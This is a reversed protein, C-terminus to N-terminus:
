NVLNIPKGRAFAEVTMVVCDALNASAERTWSASQPTLVVNDLSLLPNHSDWEALVDLGAAAIQRKKLARYLALTNVHKGDATNILVSNSKMLGLERDAIINETQPNLALNISVIDSQRLLDDLTVVKICDIGRQSRSYAIVKMGLGLGLEAVRSGITGLGIVGLTKGRLEFGLFQKHGENSPDVQFPRNRMAADAHPISRVVALMLAIAHEAVAETSYDPANAVKVGRNDAAALDVMHFATSNLVILQLKTSSEIVAKTIPFKFGDILAIDVNKLRGCTQQESTTEDYVTLRGIVRLREFHTDEFCSDNLIAIEV